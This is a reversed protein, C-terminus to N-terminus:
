RIGILEIDFTLTEGALPHRGGAPGYALEAPVILRYASGVTMLPIGEQWGAILGQLPFEIPEGRRYSSDFVTGDDKTGHYHVVVTDSVSPRAGESERIVAYQLGSSTTTFLLEENAPGHYEIPQLRKATQLSKARLSAVYCTRLAPRARTRTDPPSQTTEKTLLGLYCSPSAPSPM